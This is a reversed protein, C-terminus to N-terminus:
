EISRDDFASMEAPPSLRLTDSMGEATESEGFHVAYIQGDSGMKQKPARHANPLQLEILPEAELQMLEQGPNLAERREKQLRACIDHLVLPGVPGMASAIFHQKAFDEPDMNFSSAKVKVSAWVIEPLRISLVKDLKGEPIM